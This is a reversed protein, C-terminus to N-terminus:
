PTTPPTQSPFRWVIDGDADRPKRPDGSRRRSEPKGGNDKQDGGVSYILFGEGEARYHLPGQTFPDSLGDLNLADLTAPFSGRAARYQLLALGARTIRTEAIMQCHLTRIRGVAPALMGTLSFRGYDEEPTEPAYPRELSRTGEHITRLYNAHDALFAPKFTVRKAMLRALFELTQDNQSELDSLTAYLEKKPRTFLWEGSLLREGDMARVLPAVDDFTRLISQFREQQEKGPPAIECLHQITQCSLNILAMRVLQSILIPESRYAEALKAQMAALQWARDMAGAEAELRAKAGVICALGRTDVLGPLAIDFGADYNRDFRCAPRTTGQEITFLADEVVRRNFLEKLEQLKEPTLKGQAFETSLSGLYGLLDKFHERDAAEKASEGPRSVLDYGAPEAKLLLAASEYLLAGNETDPVEAPLIDAARTPRGDKELAAYARRLRAACVAVAIAYSLGLAVVIIAVGTLIRVTRKRM